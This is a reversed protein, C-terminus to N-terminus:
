GEAQTSSTTPNSGVVGKRSRSVFGSCDVLSHSVLLHENDDQLISLALQEVKDDYEMDAMDRM